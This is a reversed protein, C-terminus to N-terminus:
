LWAHAFDLQPKDARSRSLMNDVREAVVAPDLVDAQGILSGLGGYWEFQGIFKNFYEIGLCPTGSSMAGICAHLRASVVLTAQALIQKAEAGSSPVVVEVGVQDAALERSLEVDGPPTRLDHPMVIVPLHTSLRRITDRWIQVLEARGVGAHTYFHANPVFVFYGDVHRAELQETVPTRTPELLAGIDPAVDVRRGLLGALRDQQEVDRAWVDVREDLKTLIELTLPTPRKPISCNVLRSAVGAVAAENLM